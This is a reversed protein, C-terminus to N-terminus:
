YGLEEGVLIVKIRGAVQSRRTIVTNACICDPSLCDACKGTAACPTNRSLRMANPPAAINKVRKIAEEKDVAVKNMGAVIVVNEPGYILCSLRGGTGDINVLEGDLTIANTSMFYVDSWYARHLIDDLEKKDKAKRRDLFDIDGRESLANIIGCEELTISGGNSVSMGPKVLNMALEKAEEKNSCYFAEMQRKKLNAIIGEAAKEFFQKKYNM